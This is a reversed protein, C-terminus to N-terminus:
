DNPTESRQVSSRYNRPSQGSYARFRNSFYAADRFGCATMVERVGANTFRLLAAARQLRLQELYKMPGMGMQASFLAALHSVSCLAAQAVARNTLPEAFHEHLHRVAQKVRPDPTPTATKSYSHLTLLVRELALLTWEDRHSLTGEYVRQVGLLGRRLRARVADDEIKISWFGDPRAGAILLEQWHPRPYFVTYVVDWPMEGLVRWSLRTDARAVTIEGPGVQLTGGSHRYCCAGSLTMGLSWQHYRETDTVTGQAYRIRAAFIGPDSQGPARHTADGWPPAQKDSIIV